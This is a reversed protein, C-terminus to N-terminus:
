RWRFGFRHATGPADFGQYAYEVTINDGIFAGGFTVPQTGVDPVRRVGVRAVFTRGVVPWWSLEVGGAPIIEGDRRRAVSVTSVLDFPGVPRSRLSAGLTVRYPLPLDGTGGGAELDPGLNQISLGLMVSKIERAIGIDAAITADRTGGLRQEVFKAAVGVRTGNISRGYGVVAVLESAGFVGSTLLAEEDAAVAGADLTSPRHTLFQVGVALRGSSWERAASMMGLTAGSGYRQVGLSMGQARDLVAPNYFLADPDRESLVFANGLALARTSAPLELIIPSNGVSQSHAHPAAVTALVTIVVLKKTVDDDWRYVTV